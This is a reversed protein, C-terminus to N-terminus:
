KCATDTKVYQPGLIKFILALVKFQARSGTFNTSSKHLVIQVSGEWGCEPYFVVFSNGYFIESSKEREKHLVSNEKISKTKKINEHTEGWKLNHNTHQILIWVM